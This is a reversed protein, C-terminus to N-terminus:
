VPVFLYCWGVFAGKVANGLIQEKGLVSDALKCGVHEVKRNAQQRMKGDYRAM